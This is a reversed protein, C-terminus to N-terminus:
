FTPMLASVPFRQVTQIKFEIQPNLGIKKLAREKKAEICWVSDFVEDPAAL